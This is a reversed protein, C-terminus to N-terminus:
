IRDGFTDLVQRVRTLALKPRPDSAFERALMEYIEMALQIEADRECLSGLQLAGDLADMPDPDTDLYKGYAYRAARNMGKQKFHEAIMKLGVGKGYADTDGGRMRTVIMEDLMRLEGCLSTVVKLGIQVNNTLMFRLEEVSIKSATVDTMARATEIRAHEGLSDALGLIEGPGLVRPASGPIEYTLEVKGARILFISGSPDREFYIVANEQFLLDDAM